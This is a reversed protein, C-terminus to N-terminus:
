KAPSLQVGKEKLQRFADIMKQLYSNLPHGPNKQIISQYIGVPTDYDKLQYTSVVNITKIMTDATRVTMYEAQAYKQLVEGLTTVAESWRKQDLYCNALYRLANYEIPSAPNQRAIERYHTIAREYASMTKQYDNQGKYYNALYIPVGLGAPTQPYDRIMKEYAALAQPWNGDAEYTKAVSALANAHLNKDKPYLDIIEYFKKRATVYDKKLHYVRGILFRLGEVMRSQPYRDIIGQYGRIVEEFTKDPIVNPDKAIDIYKKYLGWVKQEVAYEDRSGLISLVAFIGGLILAYIVLTKKM